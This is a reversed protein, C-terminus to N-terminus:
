FMTKIFAKFILRKKDTKFKFTSLYLIKKLFLEIVALM